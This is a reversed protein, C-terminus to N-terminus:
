VIDMRIGYIIPIDYGRAPDNTKLGMAPAPITDPFANQFHKSYPIYPIVSTNRADLNASPYPQATNVEAQAFVLNSLWLGTLLFIMRKM